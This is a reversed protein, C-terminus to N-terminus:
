HQLVSWIQKDAYMVGGSGVNVEEDTAIMPVGHLVPSGAEKQQWRARSCWRRAWRAQGTRPTAALSCALV